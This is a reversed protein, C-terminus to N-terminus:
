PEGAVAPPHHGRQPLQAPGRGRPQLEERGGRVPLGPCLPDPVAWARLSVLMGGLVPVELVWLRLVMGGFGAVTVNM